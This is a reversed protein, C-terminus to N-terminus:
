QQAKRFASAESAQIDSLRTLYYLAAETEDATLAKVERERVDGRLGISFNIYGHRPGCGYECDSRQSDWCDYNKTALQTRWLDSYIAREPIGTALQRIAANVVSPQDGGRTYKGRVDIVTKALAIKAPDLGYATAEIVKMFTAIQALLETKRAATTAELEALDKRSQFMSAYASTIDDPIPPAVTM